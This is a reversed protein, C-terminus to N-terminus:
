LEDEVRDFHFFRPTSYHILHLSEQTVSKWDQQSDLTLIAVSGTRMEPAAEHSLYNFVDTIEPNHGVIVLTERDQSQRHIIDLYVEVSEKKSMIGWLREEIEPEGELRMHDCLIMATDRTRVAPSTVVHDPHVGVIRLYQALIQASQKGFESLPRLIDDQSWEDRREAKAHRILIIKKTDLSFM